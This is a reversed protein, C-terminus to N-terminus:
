GNRGEIRAKAALALDRFNKTLSSSTKPGLAGDQTETTEQYSSSDNAYRELLPISSADATSGLAPLGILKHIWPVNEPRGGAEDLLRALNKAIHPGVGDYSTLTSRFTKVEYVGFRSRQALFRFLGNAFQEATLSRRLSESAHQTFEADPISLALLLPVIRSDPDGHAEIQVIASAVRRGEVEYGARNYPAGTQFARARPELKAILPTVARSLENPAQRALVEAAMRIVAYSESSQYIALVPAVADPSQALISVQRAQPRQLRHNLEKSMPSVRLGKSAEYEPPESPEAERWEALIDRYDKASLESQAALLKRAGGGPMRQLASRWAAGSALGLDVCAQDALEVSREACHEAVVELQGSSLGAGLMADVVVGWMVASDEAEVGGAVASVWAALEGRPSALALVTEGFWGAQKPTMKDALARRAVAAALEPDPTELRDALSRGLALISDEDVEKESLRLAALRLGATYEENGETSEPLYGSLLKPPDFGSPQSSCRSSCMVTFYAAVLERDVRASQASYIRGFLGRRLVPVDRRGTTPETAAAALVEERAFRELEPRDAFDRLVNWALDDLAGRGGGQARELALDFRQSWAIAGVAVLVVVLLGIAMLVRKM